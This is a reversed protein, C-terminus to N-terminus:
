KTISSLASAVPGLGQLGVEAPASPEVTPYPLCPHFMLYYGLDVAAWATPHLAKASFSSFCNPVLCEKRGNRKGKKNMLGLARNTPVRWQFLPTPHRPTHHEAASISVAPRRADLVRYIEAFVSRDSKVTIIV